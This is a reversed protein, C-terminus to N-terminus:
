SLSWWLVLGVLGAVEIAFWLLLGREGSFLHKLRSGIM